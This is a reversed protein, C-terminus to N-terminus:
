RPADLCALAYATRNDQDSYTQSIALGPLAQAQTEFTSSQKISQQSSAQKNSGDQSTTLTSSTNTTSKVSTRLSLLLEVKAREGATGLAQSQSVTSNIAASGVACPQEPLNPPNNVWAPLIEAHALTTWILLGARILLKRM